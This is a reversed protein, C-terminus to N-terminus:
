SERNGDFPSFFRMHQSSFVLFIYTLLFRANRMWENINIHVDIPSVSCIRNLLSNINELTMYM